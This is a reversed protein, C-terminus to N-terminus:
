GQSERQKWAQELEAIEDMQAEFAARDAAEVVAEAEAIVAAEAQAAVAYEEELIRLRNDEEVDDIAQQIYRLCYTADAQGRLDNKEWAKSWENLWYARQVELSAEQPLNNRNLVKCVAIKIRAFM